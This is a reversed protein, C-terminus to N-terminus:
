GVWSLPPRKGAAVMAEDVNGVPVDLERAVAYDVTGYPDGDPAAVIYVEDNEWAANIRRWCRVVVAQAPTLTSPLDLHRTM